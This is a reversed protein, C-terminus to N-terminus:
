HRDGSKPGLARSIADALHERHLRSAAAVSRRDRGRLLRASVQGGAGVCQALQTAVLRWPSLGIRHLLYEARLHQEISATPDWRQDASAGGVHVVRAAPEFIIRWGARTIRLCWEHDEGYMHFREDFGGVEDIVRRRVLMAAGIVMPVSRREAHNWHPGLLWRGRIAAPLLRYMGLHTILIDAPSSVSRWVSVQGVGDLGVLRPGAAGARPDAELVAILNDIAGVTVTADPNLLLVLSGTAEAFGQNNAAGFGRNRTNRIVRLRADAILPANTPHQSM